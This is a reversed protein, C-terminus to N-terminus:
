EAGWVIDSLMENMDNITKDFNPVKVGLFKDVDTPKLVWQWENKNDDPDATAVLDKDTEYSKIQDATLLEVDRYGNEQAIRKCHPKDQNLMVLTNFEKVIYDSHTVIFVKMGANALQAFLRAMWRQSAPHLGVEPTDIMLLDGPRAGYKLYLGLTALSKVMSGCENIRMRRKAKKPLFFLLDSSDEHGENILYDGGVICSFEDLIDPYLDAISGKSNSNEVHAWIGQLFDLEEHVPLPYRPYGSRLLRSLDVDRDKQAIKDLHNIHSFEIQDQFMLMGSRDATIIFPCPLLDSLMAHSLITNVISKAPPFQPSDVEWSEKDIMDQINKFVISLTNSGKPKTYKIHQKKAFKIKGNIKKDVINHEDTTVAMTTNEFRQKYTFLVRDLQSVFRDCMNSTLRDLENIYPTLDVKLESQGIAIAVAEEDLEFDVCEPHMWLLGHIANAFLSKGTNNEGTIITIDGLTLEAQRLVGLNEAKITLSM